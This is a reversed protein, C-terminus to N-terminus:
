RQRLDSSQRLQATNLVRHIDQVGANLFCLAVPSGVSPQGLAVGLDRGLPLADSPM